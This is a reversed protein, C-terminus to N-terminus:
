MKWKGFASRSMDELSTDKSKPKRKECCTSHLLLRSILVEAGACLAMAIADSPRANNIHDEGDCDLHIEAAPRGGALTLVVCKVRTGSKSLLTCALQHTMPREFEIADLEAAIAPAENLGVSLAIQEGNEQDELIVRPLRTVPDFKLAAVRVKIARAAQDVPSHL